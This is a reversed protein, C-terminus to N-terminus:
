IAFPIELRFPRRAPVDIVVPPNGYTQKFDYIEIGSLVDDPLAHFVSIGSEWLDEIESAAEISGGEPVVYLMDAAEAYAVEDRKASYTMM